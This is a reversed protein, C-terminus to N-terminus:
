RQSRRATLMMMVLMMVCVVGCANCGSYTEAQATHDESQPPQSEEHQPEEHPPETKVRATIVPEYRVGGELYANVTVVHNAPVTLTEKGDSDKLAYDEGESEIGYPFSHWEINAGEPIAADISVPFDYRGDASVTIVPMVAATVYEHPTNESVKLSFRRSSKGGSNEASANLTFTGAKEPVGHIVGSDSFTLGDPIKGSLSWTIVKGGEAHLEARYDNSVFGEPLMSTTIRPRRAIVRFQLPRTTKGNENMATVNIKGRFDDDPIGSIIGSEADLSLGEPLIDCSWAAKESAVLTFTYEEGTFAQKISSSLIHLPSTKKPIDNSKVPIIKAAPSQLKDPSKEKVDPIKSAIPKSESISLTFTTKERRSKRQETIDVTFVGAKQPTGMIKGSSSIKLGDPLGKASWKVGKRSAKLTHSYAEGVVGPPLTKGKPQVQAPSKKDLTWKGPIDIKMPPVNYGSDSDRRFIVPERSDSYSLILVDGSIELRTTVEASSIEASMLTMMMLLSFIVRM